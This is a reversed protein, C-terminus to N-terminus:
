PWVLSDHRQIRPSREVILPVSSPNLYYTPRAAQHAQNSVLAYPAQKHRVASSKKDIHWSCPSPSAWRSSTYCSWSSSPHTISSPPHYFTLLLHTIISMCYGHFCASLHNMDKDETEVACYVHIQPLKHLFSPQILGRKFRLIQLWDVPIGHLETNHSLLFLFSGSLSNYM